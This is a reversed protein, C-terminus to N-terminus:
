SYGHHFPFVSNKYFFHTAMQKNTQKKKKKNGIESELERGRLKPELTEFQVKYYKYQFTECVQRDSLKVIVNWPKRQSAFEFHFVHTYVKVFSKHLLFLEVELLSVALFSM